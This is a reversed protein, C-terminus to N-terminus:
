KLLRFGGRTGALTIAPLRDPGPEAAKPRAGQRAAPVPNRRAAAHAPDAARRNGARATARRNM